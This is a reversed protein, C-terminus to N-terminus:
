VDAAIKLILHPAGPAFIYLEGDPKEYVSSSGALRRWGCEEPTFTETRFLCPQNPDFDM